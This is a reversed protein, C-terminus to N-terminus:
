KEQFEAWNTILLYKNKFDEFTVQSTEIDTVEM